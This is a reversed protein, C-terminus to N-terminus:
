FSCSKRQHGGPPCPCARELLSSLCRYTEFKLKAGPGELTAFCRAQNDEFVPFCPMGKGSIMFPWVQRLFLLEKVADGLAVYKPESTSLTACKQTRSLWCVCAGGCMIAGGSVSRRDTAKNSTYDADALVELSIGVTTGRQYTIGFGCSDNIYALIGLASKWHIAKPASCYGAVSRVANSIDPRTLIALWMLGGVLERFPWSETEEDEDFEELKVGVRLPVSQVSAVCFKKVLDEAFSQQSITLIGRKLGKSYRCGGYWKLDGLNKVPITRNLDACLRDHREKQGVAFIDDVHVVATTAM